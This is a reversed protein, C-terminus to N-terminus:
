PSNGERQNSIEKRYVSLLQELKKSNREEGEFTTIYYTKNPLQRGSATEMMWTGGGCLGKAEDPTDPCRFPVERLVQESHEYWFTLQGTMYFLPLGAPHPKAPREKILLAGDSAIRYYDLRGNDKVVASQGEPVGWVILIPGEYDPPVLVRMEPSMPLLYMVLYLSHCVSSGALLFLLFAGAALIQPLRNVSVNDSKSAPAPM